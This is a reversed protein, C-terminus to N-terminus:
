FKVGTYARLSQFLGYSYCFTLSFALLLFSWGLSCLHWIARFTLLSGNVSSFHYDYVYMGWLTWVYPPFGLIGLVDIRLDGNGFLLWWATFQHEVSIFSCYIHLTICVDTSMIALSNILFGLAQALDIFAICYCLRLLNREFLAVLQLYIVKAKSENVTIDM